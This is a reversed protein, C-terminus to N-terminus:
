SGPRGVSGFQVRGRVAPRSAFSRRARLPDLVGSPGGRTRGGQGVRTLSVADTGFDPRDKEISRRAPGRAPLLRSPGAHTRGGEQTPPRGPRSGRGVTDCLAPPLAPPVVKRLIRVAACRKGFCGVRCSPRLQESRPPLPRSSANGPLDSPHKRPPGGPPENRVPVRVRRHFEVPETPPEPRPNGHRRRVSVPVQAFPPTPTRSTLTPSAM